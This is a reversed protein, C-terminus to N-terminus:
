SISAGPMSAEEFTYVPKPIGSGIITIDHEKRWQVAEAESRAAVAPHEIYFNKEFPPLQSIDWRIERLGSGLGGGSGGTRNGFSSPLGGGGSGYRGGGGGGGGSGYYGGGARGGSSPGYSGYM